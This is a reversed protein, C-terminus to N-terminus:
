ELGIRDSILLNPLGDRIPYAYRGDERVLAAQLRRTVPRGDDASLEGDDIRANLTELADAGLFDLRQTTEPCRLESVDRYAMDDPHSM